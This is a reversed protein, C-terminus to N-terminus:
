LQLTFAVEFLLDSKLAKVNVKSKFLSTIKAVKMKDQFTYKTTYVNLLDSFINSSNRRCVQQGAFTNNRM